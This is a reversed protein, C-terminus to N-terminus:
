AARKSRVIFGLAGCQGCPWYRIVGYGGCASCKTAVGDDLSDAADLLAILTDLYIVPSKAEHGFVPERVFRAKFKRVAELCDAANM